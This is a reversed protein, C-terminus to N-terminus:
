IYVASNVDGFVKNGILGGECVRSILAEVYREPSVTLGM